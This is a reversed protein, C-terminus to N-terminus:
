GNSLAKCDSLISDLKLRSSHHSSNNPTPLIGTLHRKAMLTFEVIDRLSYAQYNNCIEKLPRCMDLHHLKDMQRYADNHSTHFLITSHEIYKRIRAALAKKDPTPQPPLSSLQPNPHLNPM